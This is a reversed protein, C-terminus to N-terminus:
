PERKRSKLNPVTVLPSFYASFFCFFFIFLPPGLPPAAVWPPRGGRGAVVPWGTEWDSFFFFKLSLLSCLSHLSLFLPHFHLFFPNVVWIYRELRTPEGPGLGTQVSGAQTGLGARKRCGLRKNRRVGYCQQVGKEANM